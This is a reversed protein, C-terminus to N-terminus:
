LGRGPPGEWEEGYSVAHIYKHEALLDQYSLSGEGKKDYIALLKTKHEEELPAGLDLLCGFFKEVAMSGSCESDQSKLHDKVAIKNVILWDYFQLHTPLCLFYM